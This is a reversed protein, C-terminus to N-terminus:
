KAKYTIKTTNLVSVLQGDKMVPQFKLDRVMAIAKEDIDPGLGKIVHVAKVKGDAAFIAGLEIIGEVQGSKVKEPLEMAPQTLLKIEDMGPEDCRHLGSISKLDKIVQQVWAADRSNPDSQIFSELEQRAQDPNMGILALGLQRHARAYGAQQEIAKQYAAIAEKM